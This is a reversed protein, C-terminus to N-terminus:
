LGFRAWRPDPIGLAAFASRRIRCSDCQCCPAGNAAPQYCSTTLDLPVGLEMAQQVISQKSAHQLPAVIQIASEGQAVRKSALQAARAFAEIFAPRCDPYGSYDVANVGIVIAQAGIAEAWAAALSLFVLNRVPVYTSPIGEPVDADAAAQPVAQSMDTLSSGGFQALDLHLIRHETDTARALEQAAELEVRHRQGYDFSLARVTGFKRRAWHLCVASDLGGSLLVIAQGSM